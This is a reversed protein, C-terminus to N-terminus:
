PMVMGGNVHLTQGTVYSAADSALFACAAAVEEVRGLRGAPVRKRLCDQSPPWGPYESVARTTDTMGPVVVNATIGLHAYEKSIAKVLGIVGAKATVNHARFASGTQGDPGGINIIRGWGRDIMGPLVLRSLYFMASLNTSLVSDWQTPTIDLLAQRPRRGANNILCDIGGFRARVAAVISEDVDPEGIDGLVSMAAAGAARVERVVAGAEDHNERVNVAIQYGNRALALAIARGINRGAGTILATRAGQAM